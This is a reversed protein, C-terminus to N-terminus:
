TKTTIRLRLSEPLDADGLPVLNFKSLAALHELARVDLFDNRHVPHNLGGSHHRLPEPPRADASEAEASGLSGPITHIASRDGHRVTMAVYVLKYKNENDRSEDGSIKGVDEHCYDVLRYIQQTCDGTQDPGLGGRASKSCKTTISVFDPHPATQIDYVHRYVRQSVAWMFVSVALVVYIAHKQLWTQGSKNKDYLISM